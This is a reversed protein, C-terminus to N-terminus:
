GTYHVTVMESALPSKGSGKKTEVYYIGSATPKVTIKNDSLYKEIAPKELGEAEMMEKEREAMQKKKMEEVEKAPIVDKVKFLARLYDGTKIGPPLENYLMSKLFFSDAPVIFEASDGKAMMKMGDEFSGVFTSKSVPFQTYGSGDRSVNKSDVIVSDNKQTMIVYRLMLGDGEQIKTANEDHNFFRYHLGNEAKTFGDFKSDKCSGLALGLAATALLSVKKM